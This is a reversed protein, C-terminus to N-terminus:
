WCLVEGDYEVAEHEHLYTGIVSQEICVREVREVSAPTPKCGWSQQLVMWIRTLETRSVRRSARVYIAFSILQRLTCSSPLTNAPNQDLLSNTVMRTAVMTMWANITSNPLVANLTTGSVAMCHNAQRTLRGQYVGPERIDGHITIDSQTKQMM